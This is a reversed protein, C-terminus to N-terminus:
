DIWIPSSWALNTDLQEARLYYYYRGPAVPTRDEYSFVYDLPHQDSVAECSLVFTRPVGMRSM